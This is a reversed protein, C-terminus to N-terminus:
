DDIARATTDNVLKLKEELENIEKQLINRSKILDNYTKLASNQSSNGNTSKALIGSMKITAKAEELLNNVFDFEIKSMELREEHTAGSKKSIERSKLGKSMSNAMLIDSQIKKGELVDKCEDILVNKEEVSMKKLDFGHKKAKPSLKQRSIGLEKSIEDITYYDKM